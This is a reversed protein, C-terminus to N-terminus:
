KNQKYDFSVSKDIVVNMVYTCFIRVHNENKCYCSKSFHNLIYSLSFKRVRFYCYYLCFLGCTSSTQSQIRVMSERYTKNKSLIFNKFNKHRSYLRKGLSDFYEIVGDDTVFIVIWHGYSEFAHATNVIYLAPQELEIFCLENRAYIGKYYRSINEDDVCINHIMLSNM